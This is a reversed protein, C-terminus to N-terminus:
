KKYREVAELIIAEAKAADGWGKVKVWKGKELAKYNEYFFQIEKILMEPLDTYNQVHDYHPAKLPVAIIKEDEGKEDETIMVGVPRCPVVCLPQLEVGCVVLVDVPDGDGSLTHPVFGYNAPFRMSSNIVRDVFLAGSEKDVEYKVPDRGQPIEIVVNVKKPPADGIAIKDLFM